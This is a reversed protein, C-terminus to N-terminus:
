SSVNNKVRKRKLLIISTQINNKKRKFCYSNLKKSPKIWHNQSKNEVKM